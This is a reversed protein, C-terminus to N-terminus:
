ASPARLTMRKTTTRRNGAADTATVVTSVKLSSRRILQQRTAKNLLLTVTATKGGKVTVTKRAVAKGASKLLLTIKCSTETAPCGVRFSVTGRKSARLSRAVVSVKPSTKDATASNGGSPQGTSGGGGGGTVPPNDITFTRSAESGVNGLKDVGRVSATHSGAALGSFAKPSTCAAFAGGDLSCELHDLDAAASSFALTATTGSVQVPDVATSPGTTDIDYDIQVRDLSPSVHGASSTLSAVYRIYRGPPSQIAGGAGLDAPASWNTADTSSQTKITVSSETPLGGVTSTLTGWVGRADGADHAASSFTGPTTFVMQSLSRVTVTKAVPMDDPTVLDAAVPRMTGVTAGNHTMVLAGDVFYRVSAASWEVRYVHDASALITDPLLDDQELSGDGLSLRARVRNDARATFIAWSQGTDLTDGFGVSQDVSTFTADFEVVEGPGNAQDVKVLSGDVTLVNSTVTSTGGFSTQSMGAPLGTGAGFPVNTLTGNLRVSGPAVVATGSPTGAAFDTVTDDVFPPPAAAAWAPGIAMAAMAAVATIILRGHRM